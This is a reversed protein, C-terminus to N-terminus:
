AAASFKDSGAPPEVELANAIGAIFGFFSITATLEVIWQASYKNKIAAFTAEDVRHTRILQRVYNVVDREDAPLTAPDGKARIVDILDKRIGNKQAQEVQAAWVYNADHERATTLIAAFRVNPEITTGSRMFSVLPLLRQAIAPSHLLMSFPGRIHGFVEIVADAVSQHEPSLAAKTTIPELRPM